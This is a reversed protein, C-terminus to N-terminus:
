WRGDKSGAAMKQQRVVYLRPGGRHSPRRRPGVRVNGNAADPLTADVRERCHKHLHQDTDGFQQPHLLLGFAAAAQQPQHERSRGVGHSRAPLFCHSATNSMFAGLVSSALMVVMLLRAQSKGTRRLIAGGALDMVGTRMLAATLILLGLIMIVTDSGFGAFATSPTLVGTLVLTLLLGLATVDPSISELAFLVISVVLIGLVIGIQLTM